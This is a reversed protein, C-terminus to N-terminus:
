NGNSNADLRKGKCIESFYNTFRHLEIMGICSAIQKQDIIADDSPGECDECVSSRRGKCDHKLNKFLKCKPCHCHIDHKQCYTLSPRNIELPTPM